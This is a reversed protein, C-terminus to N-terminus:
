YTGIIRFINKSFFDYYYELSLTMNAKYDLFGINFEPRAYTRQRINSYPTTPEIQGYYDTFTLLKFDVGYISGQIIVLVILIIRKM